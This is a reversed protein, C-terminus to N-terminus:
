FSVADRATMLSLGYMGQKRASQIWCQPLPPTRPPYSVFPDIKAKEIPDESFPDANIERSPFYIAYSVVPPQGKGENGRCIKSIADSLNMKEIKVDVLRVESLREVFRAKAAYDVKLSKFESGLAPVLCMVLTLITLPKM